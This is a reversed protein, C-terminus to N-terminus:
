AAEGTVASKWWCTSVFAYVYMNVYTVTSMMSQMDPTLRIRVSADESLFVTVVRSVTPQKYWFNNNYRRHKGLKYDGLGICYNICPEFYHGTVSVPRKRVWKLM